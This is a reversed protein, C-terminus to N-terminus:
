NEKIYAKYVNGAKSTRMWYLKGRASIFVPHSIGDRDVFSHGTPKNNATTDRQAAHYNGDASKSVKTQASAGLGMVLFATILIVNRM